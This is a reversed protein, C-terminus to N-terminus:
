VSSECPDLCYKEWHGALRPRRCVPDRDASEFLCLGTENVFYVIPFLKYGPKLVEYEIEVMFPKSVEVIDAVLGDNRKIRGAKCAPSM